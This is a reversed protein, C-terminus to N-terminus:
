RLHATDNMLRVSARGDSSWAVTCLSAAELFLRHVVEDGVELAAALMLKIPTVHSVVLVTRGAHRSLVRRRARAVRASVDAISEGGPAPVSVDSGFRRTALPHRERAEAFTLGELEGFDLEVLDDDFEPTVGLVAAVIEATERTRRLPSAVVVDIGLEKARVAAAEAEARGSRSLPLENRGSFRREPTHETQGHRLLHTVTTVLPAPEAVPQVDDEAVSPEAAVDRNIPTGDMASNALADAASNQARPVWTYRVDGLQRAIKQAQLALQQMDPHKIKWRGSMQEVVLKSDMRVEVEASADLDLAAQLGAVLGGYEAVNNTARGVSAAREALVRGTDADRVLAGYGAPGPNGRSGGDAEVVFRRTV